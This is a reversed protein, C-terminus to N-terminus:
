SYITAFINDRYVAAAQRRMLLIKKKNPVFRHQSICVGSYCKCGLWWSRKDLINQQVPLDFNRSKFIVEGLKISAIFKTTMRKTEKIKKREMGNWEREKEERKREKGKREEGIRQKRKSEEGGRKRAAGRKGKGEM